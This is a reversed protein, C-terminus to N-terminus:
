KLPPIPQHERPTRNPNQGMALYYSGLGFGQDREPGIPSTGEAMAPGTLMWTPLSDFQAANKKNKNKKQKRNKNKRAPDLISVLGHMQGKPTCRIYIYIYVYMPVEPNTRMEWEVKAPQPKELFAVRHVMIPLFDPM